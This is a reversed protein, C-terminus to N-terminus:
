RILSSSHKTKFFDSIDAFFPIKFFLLNKALIKFTEKVLFFFQEKFKFIIVKSFQTIKYKFKKM